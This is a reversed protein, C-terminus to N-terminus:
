YNHSPCLVIKTDFIEFKEWSINKREKVSWCTFKVFLFTLFNLDHKIIFMFLMFRWWWWIFHYDLFDRRRWVWERTEKKRMGDREQKWCWWFCCCVHFNKGYFFHPFDWTHSGGMRFIHHHNVYYIGAYHLYILLKRKHKAAAGNSIWKTTHQLLTPLFLDGKSVIGKIIDCWVGGCILIDGLRVSM